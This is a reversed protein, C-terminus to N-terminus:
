PVKRAPSGVYNGPTEIHKTVLAGAGITVDSCINLRDIITSRIGFVCNDGINCGGAILTGPSTINNDGIKTAHGIMSYPAIISHKGVVANFYVSSNPGVFVGKDIHTDRHIISTTHVFTALSYNELLDIIQQREVRDRTISVMYATDPDLVLKDPTVVDVNNFEQQIWWKFEQTISAQVYGVVIVQNKKDTDIM